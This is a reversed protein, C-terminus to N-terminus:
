WNKGTSKSIFYGATLSLISGRVRGLCCDIRILQQKAGLSTDLIDWHMPLIGEIRITGGSMPPLRRNRPPSKYMDYPGVTNEKNAQCTRIFPSVRSCPTVLIQHQGQSGGQAPVKNKYNGRGCARGLM